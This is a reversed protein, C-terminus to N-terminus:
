TVEFVTGCGSRGRSGGTGGVNATGYFNGKRDQILGSGVGMGKRRSFSYIVSETGDPALSFVTGCGGNRACSGGEATDGYLNGDRDRLLPANPIAGDSGGAFDYLTKFTRAQANGSLLVVGLFLSGLIARAGCKGIM